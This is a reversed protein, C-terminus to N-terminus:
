LSNTPGELGTVEYLSVWDRSVWVRIGRRWHRILRVRGSATLRDAERPDLYIVRLRRPSRDVSAILQDLVTQFADGTFPNAFYAVTVDAPIEYDTADATVLEIEPCRLRHRNRQVAREAVATLQPAIEVGIVRRFRYQAAEIVVRGMGSGFDIFVDDDDVETTPLVRRLAGWTSPAYSNRQPADYGLRDLWVVGAEEAPFGYRRDILVRDRARELYPFIILPHRIVASLRHALRM